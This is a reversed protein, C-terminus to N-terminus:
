ETSHPSYSSNPPVLAPRVNEIAQVLRDYQYADVVEHFLKLSHRAGAEGATLILEEMLAKDGNLAAERLRELLEVPIALLEEEISEGPEPTVAGGAGGAAIDGEYVYVLGLHQRIKELLEDEPCPKGIFDNMGNQAVVRRHDEMVDAALAVIVVDKWAPNSRIRRAAELGDMVPMQLDMLILGPDWEECARVAAEGNEVALTPFGLATLFRTLWERNDTIDDAILIRPVVQGARISLVRGPGGAREHTTGFGPASEVPIEFRFTSGKGPESRVTIDGGMLRALRLSIALGMGSGGPRVYQGGKGQVFPQFLRRQEEETMGIGTDAVEASFWLQGGDRWSLDACLSVSGRETFGLANEVLNIAVQRIKGEDARVADIGNGKLAVELRVSKAEARARFMSDLDRLMGRPDFPALNIEVRGAEIKGLDLIENIMHLLHEGSRKIIKLDAKTQDGLNLDRLLLQTYGLIANMPTRIEHSMTSLFMTKAKNAAEAEAAMVELQRSRQEANRRETVDRIASFILVGDETEIPSFTMEIPFERGDSRLGFVEEDGSAAPRIAKNHDRFRQPFLVHINQGLLVGRDHGFMRECEGNVLVIEGHSKTVVIADPAAEFLARVRAESQRLAKNAREARDRAAVADEMLNLSAIRQEYLALNQEKLEANSQHLRRSLDNLESNLELAQGSLKQHEQFDFSGLALTGDPLPFFRFYLTEPMDSVNMLTLRHVDPGGRTLAALDLPGSSGAVLDEWARGLTGAGLVDRTQRNAEVIRGTRDFRIALVPATEM